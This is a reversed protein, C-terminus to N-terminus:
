VSAGIDESTARKARRREQDQRFLRESFLAGNLLRAIELSRQNQNLGALHAELAAQEEPMLYATLRVSAGGLYKGGPTLTAPNGRPNPM